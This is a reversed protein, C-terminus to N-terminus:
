WNAYFLMSIVNAVRWLLLKVIVDRFDSRLLEAVQLLDLSYFEQVKLYGSLFLLLLISDIYLISVLFEIMM